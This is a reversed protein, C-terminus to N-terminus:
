APEVERLAPDSWTINNEAGWAMIFELLDSFEAVSLESSSQGYPIFTGNGLSPIFQVERGCAHLFLVKWQDATYRRGAHTAQTAVDTLAAWLKANQDLNRQPGKYEVRTGDPARNIWDIARDRVGKNALILLARSM